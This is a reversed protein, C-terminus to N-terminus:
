VLEEMGAKDYDKAEYGDQEDQRLRFMGEALLFSHKSLRHSDHRAGSM